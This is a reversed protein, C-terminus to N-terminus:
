LNDIAEPNELELEAAIAATERLIMAPKIRDWEEQSIRFFDHARLNLGFKGRHTHASTFVAPTGDPSVPIRTLEIPILFIGGLDELEQSFPLRLLQTKPSFRTHSARKRVEIPERVEYVQFDKADFEHIEEFVLPVISKGEEVRSEIIGSNLTTRAISESFCFIAVGIASIILTWSGLGLELRGLVVFIGILLIWKVAQMAGVFMVILLQFPNLILDTYNLNFRRALHLGLDLFGCFLFLLNAYPELFEFESFLTLLEFLVGIKWFNLLIASMLPSLNFVLDQSTSEGTILFWGVLIIFLFGLMVDEVQLEWDLLLASDSLGEYFFQAVLWGFIFGFVGGGVQIDGKRKVTIRSFLTWCVYLFGIGLFHAAEAQLAVTLLWLLM